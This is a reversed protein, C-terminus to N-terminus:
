YLAIRALNDAPMGIGIIFLSFALSCKCGSPSYFPHKCSCCSRHSPASFSFDSSRYSTPPLNLVVEVLICSKVRPYAARMLWLISDHVLMKIFSGPLASFRRNDLLHLDYM